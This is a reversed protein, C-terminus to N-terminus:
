ARRREREYDDAAGHWGWARLQNAVREGLDPGNMAQTTPAPEPTRNWWPPAAGQEEILRGLRLMHRGETEWEGSSRLPVTEPIREAIADALVPEGVSGKGVERGTVLYAPRRGEGETFLVFLGAFVPAGCVDVVYGGGEGRARFVCVGPEMDDSAYVLDPRGMALAERRLTTSRGGAPLEGFRLYLPYEKCPMERMCGGREESPRAFGGAPRPAKDTKNTQQTSFYPLHFGVVFVQKRVGETSM